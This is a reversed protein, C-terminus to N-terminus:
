PALDLLAHGGLESVLTLVRDQSLVHLLSVGARRDLLVGAPPAADPALPEVEAEDDPQATAQAASRSIVTLPVGWARYSYVAVPVAGVVALRAGLVNETANM